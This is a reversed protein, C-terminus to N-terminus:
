NRQTGCKSFNYSYAFKHTMWACCRGAQERLRKISIRKTPKKYVYVDAESTV